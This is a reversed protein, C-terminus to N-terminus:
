RWSSHFRSSTRNPKVLDHLIPPLRSTTNFITFVATPDFGLLCFGQHSSRHESSRHIIHSYSRLSMFIDCVNWFLVYCLVRCVGQCFMFVFYWRLQKSSTFNWRNIRDIASERDVPDILHTSHFYIADKATAYVVFNKVISTGFQQTRTFDYFTLCQTKFDLESRNWVPCRDVESPRNDGIWTTFTFTGLFVHEFVYCQVEKWWRYQQYVSWKMTYWEEM